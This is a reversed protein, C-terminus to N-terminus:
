TIDRAHDKKFCPFEDVSWQLLFYMKIPVSQEFIFSINFVIFM